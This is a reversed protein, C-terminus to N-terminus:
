APKAVWAACWGAKAVLKGGFAGCPAFGDAEADTQYLMCNGCHSGEQYTPAAAKDLTSADETYHLAQATPDSLALKERALARTTWAGGVAIAAMSTGATKIFHRRDFQKHM